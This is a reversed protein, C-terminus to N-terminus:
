RYSYKLVDLSLTKLGRKDVEIHVPEISIHLLHYLRLAIHQYLLVNCVCLKGIHLILVLSHQAFKAGNLLVRFEGGLVGGHVFHICSGNRKEFCVFKEPLSLRNFFVRDFLLLVPITRSRKKM